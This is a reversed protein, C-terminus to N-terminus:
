RMGGWIAYGIFVLMRLLCMNDTNSCIMVMYVYRVGM